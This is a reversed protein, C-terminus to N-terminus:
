ERVYNELWAPPRRRRRGTVPEMELSTEGAENEDLHADFGDGDEVLVGLEGDGAGHVGSTDAMEGIVGGDDQLYPMSSSPCTEDPETYLKLRDIHAVKRRGHILNKSEISPM